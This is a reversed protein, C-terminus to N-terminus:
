LCLCACFFHSFCVVNMGTPNVAAGGKDEKKKAELVQYGSGLFKLFDGKLILSLVRVWIQLIGGGKRKKGRREGKREEHKKAERKGKYVDGILRSSGLEMFVGRNVVDFTLWM